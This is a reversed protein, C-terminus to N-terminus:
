QLWQVAWVKSDNNVLLKLGFGMLDLMDSVVFFDSVVSKDGLSSWSSTLFQLPIHSNNDVTPRSCVIVQSDLEVWALTAAYM